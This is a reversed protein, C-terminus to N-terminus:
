YASADANKSEDVTSIISEVQIRTNFNLITCRGAQRSPNFAYFSKIKSIFVLYNRLLLTKIGLAFLALIRM